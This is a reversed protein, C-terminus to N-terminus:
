NLQDVVVLCLTLDSRSGDVNPLHAWVAGDGGDTQLADFFQDWEEESPLKDDLSFEALIGRLEEVTPDSNISRAVAGEVDGTLIQKVVESAINQVERLAFTM